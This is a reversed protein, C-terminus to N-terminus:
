QWAKAMVEPDDLDAVTEAFRRLEQMTLKETTRAAERILQRRLYENRSLGMRKANAEVAAIAEAPVDRILIDTM